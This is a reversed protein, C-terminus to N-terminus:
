ARFSQDYRTRVAHMAEARQIMGSNHKTLLLNAMCVLLLLAPLWVGLAPCPGAFVLTAEM